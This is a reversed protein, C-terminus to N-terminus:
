TSPSRSWTSSTTRRPARDGRTTAATRCVGDIFLAFEDGALRGVCPRRRCRHADPARDAGRARPRRRCPRLHRQGGQLPGHRPVAARRRHRRAARARHGAAAPAPVAHPEPDQDARRLPRPLPHPARRAQPRHHRARRLHLGAFQPDDTEIDALRLVVGPDDPRQATRLVRRARHRRPRQLDISDPARTRRMCCRPSRAASWSRRRRPRDPPPRRPEHHQDVGDAATVFVADTMSNLVNDLYNKTITTQRLNQRMQDVTRQLDGLEDRRLTPLPQTYDGQTM